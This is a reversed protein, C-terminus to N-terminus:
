ATSRILRNTKKIATAIKATQTNLTKRLISEQVFINKLAQLHKMTAACKKIKKKYRKRHYGGM